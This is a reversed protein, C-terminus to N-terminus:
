AEEWVKMPPGPIYHMGDWGEVTEVDVVEWSHGRRDEVVTGLPYLWAPRAPRKKKVKM